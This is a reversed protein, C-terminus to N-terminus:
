SLFVRVFFQIGSIWWATWQLDCPFRSGIGSKQCSALSARSLDFLIITLIFHKRYTSTQQVNISPTEQKLVKYCDICKRGDSIIMLISCKLLFFSILPLCMETYACQLSMAHLFYSGPPKVESFDLIKRTTQLLSYWNLCQYVWWALAAELKFLGYILNHSLLVSSQSICLCPWLKCVPSESGWAM